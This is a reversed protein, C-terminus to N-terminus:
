YHRACKSCWVYKEQIVSCYLNEQRGRYIIIALTNRVFIKVVGVLRETGMGVAVGNPARYFRGKSVYCGARVYNRKKHIHCYIVDGSRDRLDPLIVLVYIGKSRHSTGAIIRETCCSGDGTEGEVTSVGGNEEKSCARPSGVPAQRRPSGQTAGRQPKTRSSMWWERVDPLSVARM